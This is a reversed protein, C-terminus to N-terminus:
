LMSTMLFLFSLTCLLILNIIVCDELARMFNSGLEYLTGKDVVIWLLVRISVAILSAVIYLKPNFLFFSLPRSETKLSFVYFAMLMGCLSSFRFSFLKSLFTENM